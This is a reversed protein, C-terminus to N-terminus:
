VDIKKKKIKIVGCDCFYPNNSNSNYDIRKIGSINWKKSEEIKLINYKKHFDDSIFSSNIEVTDYSDTILNLITNKTVENDYLWSDEWIHILQINKIACNYNKNLHYDDDKYFNSHWYLGNYEFAMNLDPLYVDLEKGSLIKRDKEIIKGNYNERIFEVLENEKVYVSISKGKSNMKISLSQSPRKVGYKVLNTNNSKELIDKNQQPYDFGFKINNTIKSKIKIEDSQFVNEVGYKKINTKKLNNYIESNQLPYDVGYKENNTKINKIKACKKCTYINYNNYNKNYKQISINSEYGCMDCIATIRNHSNLPSDDMKIQIIDGINCDYGKNMYYKINRHIINVFTNKEKIM